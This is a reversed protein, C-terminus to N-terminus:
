TDGLDGALAAGGQHYVVGEAGGVELARQLLARVDHDVAGGLVEASVAIQRGPNDGRPRGVVPRQILDSFGDSVNQPREFGPERVPSELSQGQAHGALALVRTRDGGAEGGVSLDCFNVVGGELIV